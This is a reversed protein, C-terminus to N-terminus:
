FCTNSANLAIINMSPVADTNMPIEKSAGSSDLPIKIDDRKLDIM